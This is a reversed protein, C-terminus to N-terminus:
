PKMRKNQNTNSNPQNKKNKLFNVVPLDHGAGHGAGHGVGHGVGPKTGVRTIDLNQVSNSAHRYFPSSIDGHDQLNCVILTM